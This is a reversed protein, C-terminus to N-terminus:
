KVEDISCPGSRAAKSVLRDERWTGSATSEDVIQQLREPSLQDGEAVARQRAKKMDLLAGCRSALGEASGTCCTAQCCFHLCGPINSGLCRAKCLHLM